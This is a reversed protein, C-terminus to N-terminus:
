ILRMSKPRAIPAIITAITAGAALACCVPRHSSLWVVPKRVHPNKALPSDKLHAKGTRLPPDKCTPLVPIQRDKTGPGAPPYGAGPGPSDGLRAVTRRHTTVSIGSGSLMKLM